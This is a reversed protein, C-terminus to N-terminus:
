NEATKIEKNSKKCCNERKMMKGHKQLVNKTTTSLKLSASENEENLKKKKVLENKNEAYMEWMEAATEKFM